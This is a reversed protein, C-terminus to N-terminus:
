HGFYAINMAANMAHVHEMQLSGINVYKGFINQGSGLPKSLASFTTKAQITM